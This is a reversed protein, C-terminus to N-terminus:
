PSLEEEPSSTPKVQYMNPMSNIKLKLQGVEERLAKVEAELTTMKKSVEELYKESRDLREVKGQGSNEGSKYFLEQSYALSFVFFLSLWKM